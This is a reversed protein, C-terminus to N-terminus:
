LAVTQGVGAECRLLYRPAFLIGDLRRADPSSVCPEPEPLCVGASIGDGDLFRRVARKPQAAMHVGTAKRAVAQQTRRRPGPVEPRVTCIVSHVDFLTAYAVFAIVQIGLKM